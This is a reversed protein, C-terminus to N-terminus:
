IIIQKIRDQRIIRCAALNRHQDFWFVDGIKPYRDRLEPRTDKMKRIYYRGCFQNVAEFGQPSRIRGKEFRLTVASHKSPPVITMAEKRESPLSEEWATFLESTVDLEEPEFLVELEVCTQGLSSVREPLFGHWHFSEIDPTRRTAMSLTLAIAQLVTTKGSANDGLLATLANLQGFTSEMSFEVESVGKFNKVLVRKLKM